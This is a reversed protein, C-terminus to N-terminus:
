NRSCCQDIVESMIEPNKDPATSIIAIPACFENTNRWPIRRSCTKGITRVQASASIKRIAAPIAPTPVSRSLQKFGWMLAWLGAASFGITVADSPALQLLQGNAAESGTMVVLQCQSLDTQLPLLELDYSGDPNQVTSAAACMSM